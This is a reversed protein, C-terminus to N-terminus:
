GLNVEFKGKEKFIIFDDMKWTGCDVAGKIYAKAEEETDFLRLPAFGM